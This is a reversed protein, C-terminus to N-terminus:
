QILAASLVWAIAVRGSGRAAIVRSSTTMGQRTARRTCGVINFISVDHVRGLGPDAGPDLAARRNGGFRLVPAESLMHRQDIDILRRQGLHGIRAQCSAVIILDDGIPLLVDPGAAILQELRDRARVGKIDRDDEGSPVVHQAFSAFDARLLAKYEAPSHAEAPTTMTRGSRQADTRTGFNGEGVWGQPSPGGEGATRALPQFPSAEDAPVDHQATRPCGHCM